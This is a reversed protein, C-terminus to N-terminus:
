AFRWGYGDRGRTVHGASSASFHSSFWIANHDAAFDLAWRRSQVTRDREPDFVSLLEPRLVQVPHHLVDGAFIAKAGASDFVISAHDVTHGPTSHFSLGPLVEDGTVAIMDALGAEVIPTVSDAQVQFSTRNRETLNAPDTFYAYERASFVHRARPFTPVWRGDVLVTNWGVHDVHLHTHLVYDVDHPAVGVAALRTLYPTRLRHFYRAHPREKDNGTGTDVLITRGRHWIVWSHISLLVHQGDPTMTGPLRNALRRHDEDWDPLLQQPQLSSLVCDVVRAVRADGVGYVQAECVRPEVM